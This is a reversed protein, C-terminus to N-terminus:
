ESIYMTLGVLLSIGTIPIEEPGADADTSGFDSKLETFIDFGEILSHEWGLFISPYIAEGNYTARYKDKSVTRLLNISAGTYYKNQNKNFFEYIVDLSFNSFHYNSDKGEPVGGPLNAGHNSITAIYRVDIKANEFKVVDHRVYFGYGLGNKFQINYEESSYLGPYKIIGLGGVGVQSFGSQWFLTIFIVVHQLKIFRNLKPTKIM